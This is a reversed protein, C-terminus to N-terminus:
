LGFIGLNVWEAKIVSWWDIALDNLIYEYPLWGYGKEGWDIGWSNRILIAGETKVKKCNKNEIIKKNDYGVAMVAHGGIVTDSSCPFPIEGTQSSQAISNFVTFGFIVPMGFALRVKIKLLLDKQSLGSTDLRYYQLLQYNQGFAYCFSSPEKDFGTIEYKWYKEPPIGFLTMAAVTTRIYAGTDGTWGLLNRTTKYLFLRSADLFKGYAKMEYYEIMGVAAHATCSGLTEQDEIPSCNDRLDINHPINIRSIKSTQIGIEEILKKVSRVNPINKLKSPIEKTSDIYDRFDPLDPRWGMGHNLFTEPM